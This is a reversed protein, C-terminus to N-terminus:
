QLDLFARHRLVLDIWPEAADAICPAGAGLAVRGQHEPLGPLPTGARQPLAAV